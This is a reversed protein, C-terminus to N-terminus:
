PQPELRWLQQPSSPDPFAISVAGTTSDVSLNKLHTNPIGSSGTIAITFSTPDDAHDLRWKQRGSNDDMNFMDVIGSGDSHCSLFQGRGINATAKIHYVGPSTQEFHWYPAAVAPNTSGDTLTVAIGNQDPTLIDQVGSAGVSKIVYTTNAVPLSGPMPMLTPTQWTGGTGSTAYLGGDTGVWFAHVGGQADVAGGASSANPASAVNYTQFQGTSSEVTHKITGTTDRWLVHLGGNDQGIAVPASFDPGPPPSTPEGTGYIPHLSQVGNLWRAHWLSNNPLDSYVLDVVAASNATRAILTPASTVVGALAIWYKLPTKVITGNALDEVILRNLRRKDDDLEGPSSGAPHLQAFTQTEPRFTQTTLLSRFVPNDIVQNLFEVPFDYSYNGAVLQAWLNENQFAQSVAANAGQPFDTAEDFAYPIEGSSVRLMATHNSDDCSIQCLVPAAGPTMAIKAQMPPYILGCEQGGAASWKSGDFSLSWTRRDVDCILFETNGSRRNLPNACAVLPSAAAFNIPGWVVPTALASTNIQVPQTWGSVSWSMYWPLGQADTWGIDMKGPQDSYIAPALGFPGNSRAIVATQWITGDNSWTQMISSQDTACWFVDIRGPTFGYLAVPAQLSM